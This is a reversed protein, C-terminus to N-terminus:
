FIRYRVLLDSCARDYAIGVIDSTTWDWSGVGTVEERRLLADPRLMSRLYGVKLVIAQRIPEPVDTGAAGYGAVFRVRVSQRGSAGAPWGGASRAPIIRAPTEFLVRYASPSIITEEGEANTIGIETVSQLPPLPLMIECLFGDLLLDWTQSILARGLCGDVGDVEQRASTILAALVADSVSDPLGLRSRVEAATLPEVAPPTVLVLTM